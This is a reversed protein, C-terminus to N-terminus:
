RLLRKRAQITHSLMPIEEANLEAMAHQIQTERRADDLSRALHLAQRYCGEALDPEGLARHADGLATLVASEVPRNDTRRTIRLGAHLHPMALSPQDLALYSRGVNVLIVGVGPRDGTERAIALASWLHPLAADPQDARIYATGLFNHAAKTLPRHEAELALDLATHFAAIAEAHRGEQLAQRGRIHQVDILVPPNNLKRALCEAEQVYVDIGETQGNDVRWYAIALLVDALRHWAQADRLPRIAAKLHEIAADLDGLRALATALRHRLRAQAVPHASAEPATVLATLRAVWRRWSGSDEM